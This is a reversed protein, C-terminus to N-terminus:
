EVFSTSSADRKRPGGMTMGTFMTPSRQRTPMVPQILNLPQIVKIPEISSRPGTGLDLSQDSSSSPRRRGSFLSPQDLVTSQDSQHPVNPKQVNSPFSTPRIKQPEPPNLNLAPVHVPIMLINEEQVLEPQWNVSRAELDRAAIILKMSETIILSLQTDTAQDAKRSGLIEATLPVVYKCVYLPTSRAMGLLVEIAAAFRPLQFRNWCLMLKPIVRECFLDQNMNTLTHVLCELVLYVVNPDQIGDIFGLLAPIMSTLIADKAM